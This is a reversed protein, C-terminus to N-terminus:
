VEGKKLKNYLIKKQIPSLNKIDIKKNSKVKENTSYKMDKIDLVYEKNNITKDVIDLIEKYANNDEMKKKYFECKSDLYGENIKVLNQYVRDKSWNAYPISLAVGLKECISANFPQDIYGPMILQLVGGALLKSVTGIGGHHIVISVHKLLYDINLYKYVLIDKPMDKPLLEEYASLVIIKKGLKSAGKIAIDYYNNRIRKATSGMILIPKEKLIDKLESPIKDQNDEKLEKNCFPFGVKKIDVLWNDKDSAFWEPWLGITIKPSAQFGLWSSVSLLGVEKRLENLRKLEKKGYMQDFSKMSLAEITNMFVAIIPINYKESILYSAVSSRTKALIITDKDKIYKEIIHFERLRRENSECFLKLDEEDDIISDDKDAKNMLKLMTDFEEKTDIASFKFGNEVVREEFYCHTIIVVDHGKSKLFKGINIFPLVDGELWHTTIIINAM